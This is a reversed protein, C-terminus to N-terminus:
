KIVALLDPSDAALRLLRNRIPHDAANATKYFNTLFEKKKAESDTQDYKELLSETDDLVLLDMETMHEYFYLEFVCADILDEIFQTTAIFSNDSNLKAIQVFDVLSEFIQQKQNDVRPVPLLELFIKKYRFTNGRLDGGAYFTKFAYTLLRSNLLATLYKIKEGTLIFATAEAYQKSIDYYFTSNFVIEAYIIKEEEFANIYSNTPNNDLELWHHQGENEKGGTKCQGRKRLKTEHKKLHSYIAPYNERIDEHSGYKAVILWLDKPEIKYRKIDRGRLISRIINESKPDLAVLEDKTKGDIVFAKNFGSIFGRSISINWDKLPTGAAEIHRKIEGQITPVIIYNDDSLFATSEEADALLDELKVDPIYAANVDWVKPKVYQKSKSCLMINTYTTAAEFIPSDGFDILQHIVLDNLFYERLKKGYGARMWKNSTIFCLLGGDRLLNISREYFFCYVDGRAAYTTFLNKWKRQIQTGSFKQVSIYPPNGIVVDFGDSLSRDFMWLPEFFDSSIHPDYPNWKALNLSTEQAAFSAQMLEDALEDRLLKDKRQLALKQQRKEVAFYDHRVQQLEQEIKVLKPSKFLEMQTKETLGILTNAAVFKTELNPLPKVGHNKAKDRNTKQDCILSIFFRLKSLQIAIPQIDVGYLCNEILYLKRGYDDNNNEFTRELEERMSVSDLKDLQTLKWKANDPDLKTLIYVLKHLMGMPFAGSGCAPDLIKCTDIAKILTDVEDEDFLHQKETYAFLIDLGAKADDEKMSHQKTLATIFHLKLSEDVMYDVISRPTYFSGTQKRATTKTEENYSALLNEFVKGLLEPDLAIEQDIPTNEVITFKYASLIHILGRAKETGRRKEGTIAGINVEGEGFFFRNPITPRKKKNRSFGDVYIKKGKDDTRDLCEFLGGNLFPIDEFVALAAEPDKFLTEYRYLNDVGYTNKNKQFGEDKAFIRYKEGRANMRQNLTAFFLNQLIAQHYTPKDDDLNNLINALNNEDFLAEPILDKEKLFWCFILRTLLRILGTAKLKEYYSVEDKPSLGDPKLDDPFQIQQLAWFYWNSLEKYFRKNLLEVNFIEEWAAHLTDFDHIETKAIMSPLAFSDLIDLHGRHPEVLSIDRIITVKGLVDKESDIKNLRRNIVAISLLDRHKIFVMVSMPFVRNLQRAIATLKGRAYDQGKLEIAFFLYSKLLGSNVSDGKFLNSENSLEEDTLQFLVAAKKWDSFLAKNRDISVGPNHEVLLELFTDPDSKEVTITKDSQYGLTKLLSLSALRLPSLKFSQLTTKIAERLESNNPM